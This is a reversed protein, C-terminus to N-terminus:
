RARAASAAAAAKMASEIREEPGPHTSLWVPVDTGASAHPRRELTRWVGALTDAPLSERTIMRHADGDAEREADRSYRLSQLTALSTSALGSYDNLAVQAVAILGVGEILRRMAHRHLVHGAEHALVAMIQDDSLAQAMEDTVFLAGNPLAFANFVDGGKIRCFVVRPYLGPFVRDAIAQFRGQLAASRSASLRSHLIWHGALQREVQDGIQKDLSTPVLPLLARAALGIGQRDLWVLLALLMALSCLAARWSASLRTALGPPQLAD